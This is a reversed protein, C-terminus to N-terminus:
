DRLFITLIYFLFLCPGLVSGQSVNYEQYCTWKMLDSSVGNQLVRQKWNTLVPDVTYVLHRHCVKDFAKGFDMVLIYTQYGEHMNNILDHKIISWFIKMGSYKYTPIM